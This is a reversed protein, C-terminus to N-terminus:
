EKKLATLFTRLNVDKKRLNLKARLNAKHTKITNISVNLLEAMEKATRGEQLLTAVQVETPTLSSFHWYLNRVFPSIIENVNSELISVFVKQQADLRTNKLKELYPLIMERANCIINEETNKRDEERRKLLVRLATNTEELEATRGKVRQELEDHSSRLVMEALKRETVDRLVILKATEGRWETRSIRMEVTRVQGDQLPVDLETVEGSIVPYGFPQGLLNESDVLFLQKAAPNAFCITQSEDLVLIADQAEAVLREVSQQAALVERQLRAGELSITVTRPLFREIEDRGLYGHAGRKVIEKGLLPDNCDGIVVIPTETVTARIKALAQLTEGDPLGLDLLLLDFTETELVALGRGLTGEVRLEVGSPGATGFVSRVVEVVRGISTVLLVSLGEDDAKMTERM